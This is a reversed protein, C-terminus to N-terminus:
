KFLVKLKQAREDVASFLDMIFSDKEAAGHAESYDDIIRSGRRDDKQKCKLVSDAVSKDMNIFMEIKEKDSVSNLELSLIKDATKIDSEDRSDGLLKSIYVSLAYYKLFWTYTDLGKKRSTETMYNKGTGSIDKETYYEKSESVECLRNRAEIMIEIIESRFIDYKIAVRKAKNRKRYKSANRMVFFVNDSLVWGPFLENFAPSVGPLNASPLNILSFPYEVRQPLTIVNTAIISYPARSYNAPFKISAGLGFFMGEGPIIEQDPARSTHNSGVNAGYAINGKGEPWFASILLSQHHFGVFPGLLSATVEGKAVGSNAGVISQHVKGHTQVHSHEILVSNTVVGMSEVSAGWQVIADKVYAGDIVKASDEKSSLLTVNEVLVANDIVGYEGVYVNVVKNTNIVRAGKEIVGWDSSALSAYKQIIKDYDALLSKDSRSKMILAAIELDMEAFVAVNRGGTEVGIEDLMSGNFFTCSPNVQVSGCDVVAAGTCIRYRNLGDVSKIFVNDEIKADYIASGYIGAKRRIGNVEFETDQVGIEVHGFFTNQWIRRPTFNESVLINSWEGTTHNGQQLLREIENGKLPRLKPCVPEEARRLSKLFQSEKIRTEITEIIDKALM